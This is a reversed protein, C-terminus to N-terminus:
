AGLEDLVSGSSWPRAQELQSLKEESWKQKKLYDYVAGWFRQMDNLAFVPTIKMGGCLARTAACWLKAVNEPSKPRGNLGATLLDDGSLSKTLSIIRNREIEWIDSETSMTSEENAKWNM